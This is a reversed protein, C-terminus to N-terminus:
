WNFQVRAWNGRSQVEQWARQRACLADREPSMWLTLLEREAQTDASEMLKQMVTSM